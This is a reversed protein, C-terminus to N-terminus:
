LDRVYCVDCAFHETQVLPKTRVFDYKEYFKQAAIMNDLTELYCRGYYDKAYELAIQILKHSIGTGRAETLCFM